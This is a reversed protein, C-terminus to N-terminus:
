ERIVSEVPDSLRVRTEKEGALVFAVREVERREREDEEVIEPQLKSLMVTESPLIIDAVRPSPSVSVMVSSLEIVLDEKMEHVPLVAVRETEREEEAENSILPAESALVNNLWHGRASETSTVSCDASDKAVNVTIFM